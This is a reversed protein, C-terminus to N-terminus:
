SLEIVGRVRAIRAFRKFIDAPGSWDGTPECACKRPAHVPQTKNILSRAVSRPCAPNRVLPQDKTVVFPAATMFRERGPRTSSKTKAERAKIQAIIAA